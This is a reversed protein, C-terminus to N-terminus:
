QQGQTDPPGAEAVMAQAVTELDDGQYGSRSLAEVVPLGATRWGGFAQARALEAQAEELDSVPLPDRDAFRHEFSGSDFTGGLEGFLGSSAGITLAMMGAQVLGRSLNGYVENVLDIAPMMMYRIARGSADNPLEALRGYLLEPRERELRQYHDLVLQRANAWDLNAVLYRLTWGGPLSYIKERGIVLADKGNVSQIEELDPPVRPNGNPDLGPSELLLDPVGYGFMKRHLETVLLDLEVLKEVQDWVAAKGWREDDQREFPVHVVPVFDIGMAALPIEEKPPGLQNIDEPSMLALGGRRGDWEWSRFTGDEKSWIEIYTYRELTGDPQRRCQSVEIRIWIVHGRNDIDFDRVNAPDLVELYVASPQGNSGIKRVVKYFADGLMAVQRGLMPRLADLNSWRHFQELPARIADNETELELPPGGLVKAGYFRVVTSTPQALPKIDPQWEGEQRLLSAVDEYMGNPHALARLIAYRDRAPAETLKLKSLLYLGPRYITDAQTHQTQQWMTM